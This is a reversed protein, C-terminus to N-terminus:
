KVTDDVRSRVRSQNRNISAKLYAELKEVAIENGSQEYVDADACKIRLDAGIITSSDDNRLCLEIGDDVRYANVIQLGLGTIQTIWDIAIYQTNYNWGDFSFASYGKILVYFYEFTNNIERAVNIDRLTFVLLDNMHVVSEITADHFYEFELCFKVDNKMHDESIM